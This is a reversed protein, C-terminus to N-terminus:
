VSEPSILPSELWTTPYAPIIIEQIHNWHIGNDTTIQAGGKNPDIHLLSFM